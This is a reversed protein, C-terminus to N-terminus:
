KPGGDDRRRNSEQIQMWHGLDAQAPATEEHPVDTSYKERQRDSLLARIRVKTQDAIAVTAAAWDVRTGSGETRLTRMKKHQDLLIERLATQQTPDLDLGRAMRRVTQDIGQGAMRHTQPRALRAAAGEAGPADLTAGAAPVSAEAVDAVSAPLDGGGGGARCVGAAALGLMVMPVLPTLRRVPAPGRQKHVM